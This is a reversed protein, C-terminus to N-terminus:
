KPTAFYMQIDFTCLDSAPLQNQVLNLIVAPRKRKEIDAIKIFAYRKKYPLFTPLEFYVYDTNLSVQLNTLVVDFRMTASLENDITETVFRTIASDRTVTKGNCTFGVIEVPCTKSRNKHLLELNRHMENVFLFSPVPKFFIKRYFIPRGHYLQLLIRYQHNQLHVLQLAINFHFFGNARTFAIKTQKVVTANSDTPYHHYYANNGLALQIQSALDQMKVEADDISAYDGYYFELYHTSDSVLRGKTSGELLLKSKFVLSGAHLEDKGQTMKGKYKKFEYPAQNLLKVLDKTFPTKANGKPKPLHFTQAFVICCYCCCFLLGTIKKM